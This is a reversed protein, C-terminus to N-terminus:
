SNALTPLFELALRSGITAISFKARSIKQAKQAKERSNGKEAIGPNPERSDNDKGYKLTKSIIL